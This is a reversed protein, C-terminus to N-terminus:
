GPRGTLAEAGAACFLVSPSSHSLGSRVDLQVVLVDGAAVGGLALSGGGPLDARPSDYTFGESVGLHLYRSQCQQELVRRVQDGTMPITSLLNGFPQMTFAERYTVVGDGEGRASSAYLLDSRVGGPNMLAIQAGNDRTAGLRTWPM